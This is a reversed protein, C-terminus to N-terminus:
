WKCRYLCVQGVDCFFLIQLDVVNFSKCQKTWRCLVNGVVWTSASSPRRLYFPNNRSTSTCNTIDLLEGFALIVWDSMNSIAFCWPVHRGISCAINTFSHPTHYPTYESHDHPNPPFPPRMNPALSSGWKVPCALMNYWAINPHGKWSWLIGFTTPPLTPRTRRAMFEHALDKMVVIDM